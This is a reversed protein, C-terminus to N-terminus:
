YYKGITATFAQCSQQMWLKKHKHKQNKSVHAAMSALTEAKPNRLQSPNKEETQHTEQHQTQNKEEEDQHHHSHQTRNPTAKEQHAIHHTKNMTQNSAIKLTERRREDM